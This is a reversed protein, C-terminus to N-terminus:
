AKEKKGLKKKGSRGKRRPKYDASYRTKAPPANSETKRPTINTRQKYPNRKRNGRALQNVQLTEGRRKM